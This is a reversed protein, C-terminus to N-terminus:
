SIKRAYVHWVYIGDQVTGIYEADAEIPWGTGVVWVEYEKDNIGHEYWVRIKGHQMQATLIREAAIVGCMEDDFTYKYILRRM